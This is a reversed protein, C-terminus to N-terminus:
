RKGTYFTPLFHDINLQHKPISESGSVTTPASRSSATGNSSQIGFKFYYPIAFENTAGGALVWGSGIWGPGEGNFPRIRIYDGWSPPYSSTFTPGNTGNAVQIINWPSSSGSFNNGIGAAISPYYQGGGYFAQIAVNGQKDPSGYGYMWGFTPSWLYPRSLYSMNDGIRFTAADVYPYEFTANNASKGGKDADWFFGIVDNAMFAGRIKSQGRVCWNTHDPADCKGDGRKLLSWAPVDRDFSKVSTAPASDAWQYLRMAGTSLHIGWYMTDKAGQVPTFTHSTRPLSSDIYYDFIPGIGTSNALDNLSIRLIVPRLFQSERIMNMSIYLYKESLALSPYDSFQGAWSGNINNAMFTYFRWSFTDSSVGLSLHNEPEDQGQRYWIFIGHNPDYIVDQDCCFFEFRQYPSIYGWTAGGDISRAAFWNGTYFILNDKNALSSEMSYSLSGGGPTFSRKELVKLSPRSTNSTTLPATPTRKIEESSINTSNVNSGTTNAITQTGNEPGLVPKSSIGIDPVTDTKNLEQQLNRRQAETLQKPQPSAEIERAPGSGPLRHKSDSSAATTSDPSDSQAFVVQIVNVYNLSLILSVIVLTTFYNNSIINIV